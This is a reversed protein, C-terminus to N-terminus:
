NFVSVEILAREKEIRQMVVRRLIVVEEYNLESETYDLIDKSEQSVTSQTLHDTYATVYDVCQRARQLMFSVSLRKHVEKIDQTICTM